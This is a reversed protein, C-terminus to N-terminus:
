PIQFGVDFTRNFLFLPSFPANPYPRNFIIAYAERLASRMTIKDATYWGAKKMVKILHRKSKAVVAINVPDSPWGDPTTAYLPIHNPKIILRWFRILAPLGFYAVGIYVLLFAFFFPLRKDLYPFAVFAAAYGLALGFILVLLRWLTHLLFKAM